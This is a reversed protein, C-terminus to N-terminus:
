EKIILLRWFQTLISVKLGKKFTLMRPLIQNAQNSGKNQVLFTSLPFSKIESKLFTTAEPIHIILFPLTGCTDMIQFIHEKIMVVTTKNGLIAM